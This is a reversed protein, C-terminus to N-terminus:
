KSFAHNGIKTFDQWLSLIQLNKQYGNIPHFAKSPIEDFGIDKVSIEQSIVFSSM